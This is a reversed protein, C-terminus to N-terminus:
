FTPSATTDAETPLVLDMLERTRDTIRRKDALSSTTSANLIMQMRRLALLESAIEDYEAM